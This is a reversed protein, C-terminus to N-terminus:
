RPVLVTTWRVKGRNFYWQGFMSGGAAGLLGSVPIVVGKPGHCRRIACTRSYTWAAAATGGAVATLLPRWTSVEFDRRGVELRQINEVAVVGDYTNRHFRRGSVVLAKGTRDVFMSVAGNLQPSDSTIRLLDGRHLWMIREPASTGQGKLMRLAFLAALLALRM